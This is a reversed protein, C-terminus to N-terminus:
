PSSRRSCRHSDPSLMKFVGGIDLDLSFGAERPLQMQGLERTAQADVRRVCSKRRPRTEEDGKTAPAAKRKKSASAPDRSSEAAPTSQAPFNHNPQKAASGKTGVLKKKMSTTLDENANSRKLGQPQKTMLGEKADPNPAGATPEPPLSIKPPKPTTKNPKIIKGRGRGRGRGRARGRGRPEPEQDDSESGKHKGNDEEKLARRM